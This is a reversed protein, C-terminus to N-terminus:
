ASTPMGQTILLTQELPLSRPADSGSISLQVREPPDEPPTYPHRYDFSPARAGASEPAAVNM